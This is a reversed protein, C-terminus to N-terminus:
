SGKTASAETSVTTWTEGQKDLLVEVDEGSQQQVSHQQPQQRSNGLAHDTAVEQAVQLSIPAGDTSQVQQQTGVLGISPQQQSSASGNAQLWQQQVQQQQQPSQGSLSKMMYTVVDDLNEQATFTKGQLRAAQRRSLCWDEWLDALKLDWAVFLL